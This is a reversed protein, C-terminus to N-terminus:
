RDLLRDLKSDLRKVADLLAVNQAEVVAIREGHDVVKKLAWGSLATSITFAAAALVRVLGWGTPAEPPERNGAVASHAHTM